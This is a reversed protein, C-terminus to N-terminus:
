AANKHRFPTLAMIRLDLLPSWNEIYYLDCRLRENLDTDGRFGHVQAWGTIGPKIHHRANYHSIEEKFVNILEPREPRPGVLSMEGRLVNWFQPLEDINWRRMFAGIRLRRPDDKVTWGVRGDGEADVRMSRIKYIWFPKGHQGLRRQRYIVPGPSERYVLWAFVAIIPASLAAGVLGGVFDLVHKVLVNFPNELPFYSIGLVPVGSVTQLRLRPLLVQFCSPIVEFDIMEKECLNALAMTEETSADLDALIVIDIEHQRLVAAVEGREGLQRVFLSPSLPRQEPPQSPVYGIIEYPHRADALIARALGRAADSWGVFLVRQRLREAITEDVLIKGLLWRWAAFTTTTVVFAILVYVRSIDRQDRLFASFATYVLVWIVATRVIALAIPRFNVIRHLGYLERHPLLLLFLLTGFAAHGFYSTWHITNADTGVHVLRTAFRLWSSFALSLFIVATDGAVSALLVPTTVPRGRAAPEAALLGAKTPFAREFM